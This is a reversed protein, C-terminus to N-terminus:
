EKVSLEDFIKRYSGNSMWFGQSDRKFSSTKLEKEFSLNKAAGVVPLQIRGLM